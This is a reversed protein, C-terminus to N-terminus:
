VRLLDVRMAAATPYRDARDYALATMVVRELGASLEPRCGRLPQFSFPARCGPDLGTLLHHLTAGLAYLDSQADTQASGYQEPPAYGMTGMPLTDSRRAPDFIRAIGFDILRVRGDLELMINAPKLDRFVVPPNQAHIYALVACLELAWPLAEAEDFPRGRRELLAQLTEGEVREMVLYHRGGESFYDTVKPLNHHSLRALLRAERRFQQIAAPQENAPLASASMEKVAVEVGLRDDHALYVEGMGGSGLAGSVRYRGQLLAPKGCGRCFHAEPRNQAQCLACPVSTSAATYPVPDPALPQQGATTAAPVNAAPTRPLEVVTAASQGGPTAPSAAMKPSRVSYWLGGGVLLVVLALVGVAPGVWGSGSDPLAPPTPTRTPWAPPPTGTPTRSPAPTSARTPPAETTPAGESQPTDTIALEPEQTHMATATPAEGPGASEASQALKDSESLSLEFVGREVPTGEQGVHEYFYVAVVQSAAYSDLVKLLVTVGGPPTGQQIPPLDWAHQFAVQTKYGEPQANLVTLSTPYLLRMTAKGPWGGDNFYTIRLTAQGVGPEPVVEMEVRFVPTQARVVGPAGLLLFLLATIAGLAVRM